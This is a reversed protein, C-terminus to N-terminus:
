IGNNKKGKRKLRMALDKMKPPLSPINIGALDFSETESKKVAKPPKDEPFSKKRKPAFKKNKVNTKTVIDTWIEKGEKGKAM